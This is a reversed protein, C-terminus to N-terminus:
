KKFCDNAVGMIQAIIADTVVAKLCLLITAGLTQLPTLNIIEQRGRTADTAGELVLGYPTFGGTLYSISNGM